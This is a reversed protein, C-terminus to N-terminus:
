IFRPSDKNNFDVRSILEGVYQRAMNNNAKLSQKSGQTLSSQDNRHSEVNSGKSDHTNPLNKGINGSEYEGDSDSEPQVDEIVQIRRDIFKEEPLLSKFIIERDQYDFGHLNEAKVKEENTIEVGDMMRLQPMHFLCQLRYYRCNQVPNVCLDVETLLPLNEIFRLQNIKKVNNMSINLFKLSEITELGRLKSIQNKSLDLTRLVPLTELNQIM